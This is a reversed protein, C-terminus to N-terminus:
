LFDWGLFKWYISFGYGLWEFSWFYAVCFLWIQFRTQNSANGQITYVIHFLCVFIARFYPLFQLLLNSQLYIFSLLILICAFIWPSNWFLYSAILKVLYTVCIIAMHIICELKMRTLKRLINLYVDILFWIIWWKDCVIYGMKDFKMRKQYIKNSARFITTPASNATYFVMNRTFWTM